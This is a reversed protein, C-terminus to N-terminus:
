FSQSKGALGQSYTTGPCVANVRINDKVYDIALSKTLGLLAAKSVSYVCRSPIGKLAAVSSVNVIV